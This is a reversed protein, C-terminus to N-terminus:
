DDPVRERLEEFWNLVVRIPEGAESGGPGTGPLRMMLFRGDPAVHYQRPTGGARRYVTTSFLARRETVQLASTGSITAAMMWTM